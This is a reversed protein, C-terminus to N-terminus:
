YEDVGRLFGFLPVPMLFGPFPELLVCLFPVLNGSHSNNSPCHKNSLLPTAPNTKM